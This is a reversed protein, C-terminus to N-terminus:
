PLRIGPWRDAHALARTVEVIGGRIANVAESPATLASATRVLAYRQLTPDVVRRVPISGSTATSLPLLACADGTEAIQVMTSLSEVDAVVTPDIQQDRLAREILARLSSRIGPAVLPVASLEDLSVTTDSGVGPGPDGFLYLEESYLLVDDPEPQERYVVALDMRGRGFLEEIYGSMSEFLELRVGPFHERTWSYLPAALQTAVASPLGVAVMGRIQHHDAVARALQDFQRVLRHADRYLDLGAQTATVGRPGRELLTVGLETELQNM